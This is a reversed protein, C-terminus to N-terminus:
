GRRSQLIEREYRVDSEEYRRGIDVSIQKYSGPLQLSPAWDEMPRLSTVAVLCLVVAVVYFGIHKWLHCAELSGLWVKEMWM